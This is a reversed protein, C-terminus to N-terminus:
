LYKNKESHRHFKIWRNKVNTIDVTEINTFIEDVHIISSIVSESQVYDNHQEKCILDTKM